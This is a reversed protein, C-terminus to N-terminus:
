YGNNLMVTSDIATEGNISGRGNCSETSKRSGQPKVVDIREWFTDAVTKEDRRAQKRCQRRTRQVFFYWEKRVRRM